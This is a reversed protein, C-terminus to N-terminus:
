LAANRRAAQCYQRKDHTGAPLPTLCHLCIRLAKLRAWVRSYEDLRYDKWVREYESSTFTRTTHVTGSALQLGPYVFSPEGEGAAELAMQWDVDQDSFKGSSLYECRRFFVFPSFGNRIKARDDDLLQIRIFDDQFWCTFASRAYGHLRELPLENWPLCQLHQIFGERTAM